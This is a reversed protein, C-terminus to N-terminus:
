SHLLFLNHRLVPRTFYLYPLRFPPMQVPCSLVLCSRFRRSRTGARMHFRFRAPKSPRAWTSATGSVAGERVAAM